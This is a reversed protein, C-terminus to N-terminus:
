ALAFGRLHATKNEAYPICSAGYRRAWVLCFTKITQVIGLLTPSFSQLRLIHAQPFVWMGEIPGVLHDFRKLNGSTLDLVRQQDGSRPRESDQDEQGNDRTPRQRPKRQHGQVSGLKSVKETLRRKRYPGKQQSNRWKLINESFWSSTVSDCDSSLEVARPGYQSSDM